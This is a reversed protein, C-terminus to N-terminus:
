PFRDVMRDGGGDRRAAAIGEELHSADVAPAAGRAAIVRDPEVNLRKFFFGAMIVFGTWGDGARFQHLDAAAQERAECCDTASFVLQLAEEQETAMGREGAGFATPHFPNEHEVGQGM